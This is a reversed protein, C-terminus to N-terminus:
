SLRTCKPAVSGRLEAASPQVFPSPETVSDPCRTTMSESSGSESCHKHYTGKYFLTIKSNLEHILEVRQEPASGQAVTAVAHDSRQAGWLCHASGFCCLGSRRRYTLVEFAELQKLIVRSLKSRTHQLVAHAQENTRAVSAFVGAGVGAGAGTVLRGAGTVTCGVARGSGTASVGTGAVSTGAVTEGAGAVLGGVLVGVADGAGAAASAGV